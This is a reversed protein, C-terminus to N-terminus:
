KDGDEVVFDDKNEEQETILGLVRLLPKLFWRKIYHEFKDVDFRVDEIPEENEIKKAWMGIGVLADDTVSSEQNPKINADGSLKSYVDILQKYLAINGGMRAKQAEWTTQAMEKYIRKQVPTKSEYVSILNVYEEELFRYEDSTSLKGWRKIMDKTVFFDEEEDSYVELSEELNDNVNKGNHVSLTEGDKFTYGAYQKLSNVKQIYISILNSKNQNAQMEASEFIIKGFYIDLLSCTAYVAKMSDGYYDLNESYIRRVCTKCVCMRGTAQFMTSNSLYFDTTKKEKGCKTCSARDPTLKNM